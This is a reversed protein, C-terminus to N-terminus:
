ADSLMHGGGNGLSITGLNCASLCCLIGKLVKGSLKLGEQCGFLNRGLLPISPLSSVSSEVTPIRSVGLSPFLFCFSSDWRFTEGVSSPEPPIGPLPPLCCGREREGGGLRLEPVFEGETLCHQGSWRRLAIPSGRPKQLFYSSWSSISSPIWLSVTRPLLLQKECFPPSFAGLTLKGPPFPLGPSM